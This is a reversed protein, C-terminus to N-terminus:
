DVSGNATWSNRATNRYVKHWINKMRIIKHETHRLTGRIFIGQKTLIADRAHHPHGDGGSLDFCRLIKGYKGLRNDKSKIQQKLQVTSIKPCPELFFEGQRKIQGSLYRQYQEDSLNGALDRYTEEVQLIKKSRLEVLFFQHNKSSSDISSLFLKNKHKILSAGLHHIRYEDIERTEPNKRTRTEYSDETVDIIIIQEPIIGASQLASFPIICHKKSQAHRRTISQHHSTSISYTDGNLVYGNKCRLALAFHYSYSYLVKEEFFLNTGKNFNKRESDVANFFNFIISDHIYDRRIMM